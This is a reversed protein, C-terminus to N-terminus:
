SPRGVSLLACSPSVPKSLAPQVIALPLALRLTEATCGFSGDGVTSRAGTWKEGAFEFEGRDDAQAFNVDYAVVKAPGRALFDILMSHMVRPWPWRGAIPEANRLSAEDIYVLAIDKRATEPQATRSMRWDYTKLEIAQLPSLGSGRNLANFMADAGLVLVAASLGVITGAIIKRM